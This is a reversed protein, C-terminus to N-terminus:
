IILRKSKLKLDKKLNMKMILINPFKTDISQFHNAKVNNSDFDIMELILNNLNHLNPIEKRKRKKVMTSTISKSQNILNIM